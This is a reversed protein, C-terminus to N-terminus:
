KRPLRVIRNVFTRSVGLERAAATLDGRNSEAAAIVRRRQVLRVEDTLGRRVLEHDFREVVLAVQWALSTTYECDADSFHETSSAATFREVRVFGIPSGIVIPAHM